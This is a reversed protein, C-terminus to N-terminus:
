QSRTETMDIASVALTQYARRFRESLAQHSIDLEAALGELSIDRPIEFYGYELAAVLAEHQEPTLGIEDVTTNSLSQIQMMEVPIERESFREYVRSVADHSPFRLQLTWTGHRATAALVTGGEAVILSRLESVAEVFEIEYLWREATGTIPSYTEVTPDRELAANISALDAEGLWLELNAAAIVPKLECVLAPVAEFTAGLATENAPVRFEAVTVM